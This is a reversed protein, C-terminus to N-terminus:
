ESPPTVFLGIYGFVMEETNRRQIASAEIQLRRSYAAIDYHCTSIALLPQPSPSALTSRIRLQFAKLERLIDLCENITTSRVAAVHIIYASRRSLDSGRASSSLPLPPYLGAPLILSVMQIDLMYPIPTRSLSAEIVLCDISVSSALSVGIGERSLTGLDLGSVLHGHAATAIPDLSSYLTM